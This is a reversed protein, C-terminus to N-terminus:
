GEVRKRLEEFKSDRFKDDILVPECTILIEKSIKRFEEDSIDKDRSLSELYGVYYSFILVVKTEDTEYDSM